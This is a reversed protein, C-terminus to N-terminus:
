EKRNKGHIRPTHIRPSLLDDVLKGYPQGCCQKWGNRCQAQRTQHRRRAGLEERAFSLEEPVSAVAQVDDELIPQGLTPHVFTSGCAYKM